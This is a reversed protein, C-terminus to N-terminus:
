APSPLCQALPDPSGRGADLRGIFLFCQGTEPLCGIRFCWRGGVQLGLRRELWCFLKMLGVDLWVLKMEFSWLERGSAFDRDWRERGKEEFGVASLPMPVISVMVLM